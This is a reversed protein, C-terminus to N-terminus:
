CYGLQKLTTPLDLDEEFPDLLVKTDFRKIAGGLIGHFSLDPNGDRYVHQYGDDFFL